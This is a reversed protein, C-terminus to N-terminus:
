AAARTRRAPPHPRRVGRMSWPVRCACTASRASPRAVAASIGRSALFVNAKYATPLARAPAITTALAPELLTPSTPMSRAPTLLWLAVPKRPRIWSRPGTSRASRFLCMTAQMSRPLCISSLAMWRGQHRHATWGKRKHLRPMAGMGCPATSFLLCASTTRPAFVTRDAIPLTSAPEGIEAHPM